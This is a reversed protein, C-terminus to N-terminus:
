PADRHIITFNVTRWDREKGKTGDEKVPIEEGHIIWVSEEVGRRKLEKLRDMVQNPIPNAYDSAICGPGRKNAGHGVEYLSGPPEIASWYLTSTIDVQGNEDGEGEKVCKIGTVLVEEDWFLTPTSRVSAGAMSSTERGEVTNTVTQIPFEGLPDWRQQSIYHWGVAIWSIVLLIAFVNFRKFQRSIWKWTDSVRRKIDTLNM